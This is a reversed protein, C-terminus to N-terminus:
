AAATMTDITFSEHPRLEFSTQAPERWTEFAALCARADSPWVRLAYLSIRRAGSNGAHVNTSAVSCSSATRRASGHELYSEEVEEEDEARGAVKGPLYRESSAASRSRGSARRM